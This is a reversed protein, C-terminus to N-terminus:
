QAAVGVKGPGFSGRIENAFTPDLWAVYFVTDTTELGPFEVWGLKEFVRRSPSNDKYVGAVIARSGRAKSAGKTSEVLRPFIGYGRYRNDVAGIIMQAVTPCSLLDGGIAYHDRPGRFARMWLAKESLLLPNKLVSRVFPGLCSVFMPRTFPVDSVGVYGAVSDEVDAVLVYSHGSSVQWRFTSKVYDQGLRVPIHEHPKFSACHLETLAEIDDNTAVRIKVLPTQKM